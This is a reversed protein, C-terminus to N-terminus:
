FLTDDFGDDGQGFTEWLVKNTFHHKIRPTGDKLFVLKGKLQGPWRHHDDRFRGVIYELEDLALGTVSLAEDVVSPDSLYIEGLRM